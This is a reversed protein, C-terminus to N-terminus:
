SRGVGNNGFSVRRGSKALDAEIQKRIGLEHDRCTAVMELEGLVDFDITKTALRQCPIRSECRPGTSILKFAKEGAEGSGFLKRDIM